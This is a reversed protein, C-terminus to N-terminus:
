AEDEDDIDEEDVGYVIGYDVGEIGGSLDPEEYYIEGSDQKTDDSEETHLLEFDVLSQLSICIKIVAYEAFEIVPHQTHLWLNNM